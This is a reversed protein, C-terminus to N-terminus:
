AVTRAPPREGLIPLRSAHRMVSSIILEPSMGCLFGIGQMPEWGEGPSELSLVPPSCREDATAKRWYFTWESSPNMCMAKFNDQLARRIMAPYEAHFDFAPEPTFPLAVTKRPM